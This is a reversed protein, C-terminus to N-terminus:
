KLRPKLDVNLNWNFEHLMFNVIKFNFLKTTTFVIVVLEISNWLMKMM